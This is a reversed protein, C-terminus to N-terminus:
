PELREALIAELDEEVSLKPTEIIRGMEAGNRYVIFTPVWQIDKGTVVDSPNKKTRDIGAFSSRFLNRGMLDWVKLYKPVQRRSDGCWTGLIVEVELEGRLSNARDHLSDLVEQDPKYGEYIAQWEPTIALLAEPTTKGLLMKEEEAEESTRSHPGLCATVLLIAM